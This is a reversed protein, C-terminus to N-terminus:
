IKINLSNEKTNCNRQIVSYLTQKENGLLILSRLNKVISLNVDFM